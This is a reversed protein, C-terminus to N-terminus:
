DFLMKAVNTEEAQRLEDLISRFSCDKEYSKAILLFGGDIPADANSLTVQRGFAPLLAAIADRDAASPKLLEGGEAERRLVALCINGREGASLALLKQYAQEFTADIVARKKALTEKRGDLAARTKSGDLVSKVAAERKQAYDAQLARVACDNDKQIASIADATEKGIRLADQQADSVIRAALKNVGNQKEQEM